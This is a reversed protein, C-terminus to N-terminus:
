SVDDLSHNKIFSEVIEITEEISEINRYYQRNQEEDDYSLLSMTSDSAKGWVKLIELEFKLNVELTGDSLVLIQIHSLLEDSSSFKIPSSVFSIHKYIEYVRRIVEDDSLTLREIKETIDDLEKEVKRIKRKLYDQKGRRTTYLDYLSDLHEMLADKEKILSAILSDNIHENEIIIRCLAYLEKVKEKTFDEWSEFLDDFFSQVAADLKKESVNPNSCCKTGRNKKTKCNYFRRGRDVNSLYVCSCTGCYVIDAYKSRPKNIGKQDVYSVKSYRIDRCKFFTESAIIPPIKSTELLKYEDDEKRHPYTFKDFLSNGIFYKRNNRFGCYKENDLIRSVTTKSFDKGKRTKYGKEQLLNLIQRIGYGKGYLDFIYRIVKAEDEVVELRNEEKIYRYGFLRSNTRVVGKEDGEAIGFLVKTRRDRSEREDFSCFIQIYTLDSENETSKSLDLFYVYVGKRALDRFISEVEVNRAFRSTNKVFIYKFKPERSSPLTVYKLYGSDNSVEVIDLGADHLMRDFHERRLKTGSIGKDAYVETLAFDPNRSLERQFYSKQNEFSNTQDKSDTSVRCYACVKTM